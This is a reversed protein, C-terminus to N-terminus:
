EDINILTYKRSGVGLNEATELIRRGNRSEVREIFHEKGSDNSNFVLDICAQDLAVPDLSALIGIDAVCPNEAVACCDCDVSMNRMVNIYASKGEFLKAVTGSAEAMSDLFDNQPAIHEWLQKADKTVGATHIWCKGATSACGISLQKLAGGFGGMPHGKFHSLVLLSDYNLLNKGVYNEQLFKGNEVKLPTDGNEDLIDVAFNESWGHLKILERHKETTNRAGEYATNCEVITGNFGSLFSKFFEPRLFNQNGKEGSHVKIAVKGELKVGLADYVKQLGETSINTTFYVNAM